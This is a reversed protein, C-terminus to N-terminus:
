KYFIIKYICHFEILKASQGRAIDSIAGSIVFFVRVRCGGDIKRMRNTNEKEDGIETDEKDVEAM